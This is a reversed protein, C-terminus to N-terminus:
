STSHAKGGRIARRACCVSQKWPTVDLIADPACGIVPDRGDPRIRARMRPGDVADPDVARQTKPPEGSVRQTRLRMAFGDTETWRELSASATIRSPVATKM